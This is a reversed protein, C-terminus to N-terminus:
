VAGEVTAVAKVTVSVADAKASALMVPVTLSFTGTFGAIVV